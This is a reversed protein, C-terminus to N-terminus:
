SLKFQLTEYLIWNLRGLICKGSDLEGGGNRKWLVGGGGM